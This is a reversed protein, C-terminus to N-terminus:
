DNDDDGLPPAFRKGCDECEYIPLIKTTDLKINYEGCKPCCVKYKSM